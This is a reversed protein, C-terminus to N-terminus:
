KGLKKGLFFLYDNKRLTYNYNIYSHVPKTHQSLIKKLEQPSGIIEKGVWKSGEPFSQSVYVFGNEKAMEVATQLFRDLKHCVYWIVERIVILGFQEGRLPRKELLDGRIFRIKPFMSKAKKIAARSIEVSTVKPKNDDSKLEKYLRNTFYGLGCGIECVSEYRFQKLIQMDINSFASYATEDQHWPIDKSYRYMQEFQGILKGDKFVYDHYDTSYNM